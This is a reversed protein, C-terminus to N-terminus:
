SGSITLYSNVMHTFALFSQIFLVLNQNQYDAILVFSCITNDLVYMPIQSQQSTKLNLTFIYWWQFYFSQNENCGLHSDPTFVWVTQLGM